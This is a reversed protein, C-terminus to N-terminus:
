LKKVGAQDIIQKFLEIEKTVRAWAADAGKVRVQFGARYLKDKMEPMALVKLTERELWQIDEPPTRAPALLVTDTAFVFDEYGEEQMTPVNPM